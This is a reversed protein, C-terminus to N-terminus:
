PPDIGIVSTTDAQAQLCEFDRRCGVVGFTAGEFDPVGIIRLTRSIGAAVLAVLDRLSFVVQHSFAGLPRILLFPPEDYSPPALRGYAIMRHRWGGEARDDKAAAESVGLAFPNLTPDPRSGKSM